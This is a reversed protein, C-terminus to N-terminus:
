GGGVFRVVELEDGDAVTTASFEEGSLVKRNHEVVVTEPRIRLEQLLASVTTGAAVERVKGNIRIQVDNM